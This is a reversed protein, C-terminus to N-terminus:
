IIENTDEVDLLSVRKPQKETVKTRDAERENEFRQLLMLGREFALQPTPRQGKQGRWDNAKWDEYVELWFTDVMNEEYALKCMEFFNTAEPSSSKHLGWYKVLKVGYGCIEALGHRIGEKIIREHKLKYANVVTADDTQQRVGDNGVGWDAMLQQAENENQTETNM